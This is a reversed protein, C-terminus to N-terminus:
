KTGSTAITESKILESKLIRYGMYQLPLSTYLAFAFALFAGYPVRFLLTSGGVIILIQVITGFAIMLKAFLSFNNRKCLIMTGSGFGIVFIIISLSFALIGVLEIFVKSFITLVVVGGFGSLIWLLGVSTIFIRLHSPKLSYM